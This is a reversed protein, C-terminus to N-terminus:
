EVTPKNLKRFRNKAWRKRNIYIGLMAKFLQLPQYVIGPWMFVENTCFCEKAAVRSRLEDARLSDWIDFFSNLRLNGIPSHSECIGVDGNAYIVGTMNGATCPVYQSATTVTEKKAWQLMPEVISGDRDKEQDRWLQMIHHYLRFYEDLVPGKLSTNKRDGRIIALNHHEIMPCRDRLYNSLQRIEDMNEHTATSIAHIKLNPYKKQLDVLMDYTQMAKEFSRKNGRFKNHYEPMGDLSLECVLLQLLDTKLLVDLQQKTRETFYGNTPVYIQKVGNNRIFLSCIDAFQKHIFPEGGSLNLNEFNGLEESLNKFEDYSLDDPNNLNRWYFCHECHLNCISNIFIIMFPPTSHRKHSIARRSLRAHRTIRTLMNM